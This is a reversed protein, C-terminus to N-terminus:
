KYPNKTPKFNSVLDNQKLIHLRKDLFKSNSGGLGFQKNNLERTAPPM